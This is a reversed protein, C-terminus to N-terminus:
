KFLDVFDLIAAMEWMGRIEELEAAMEEESCPPLSHSGAPLAAASQTRPQSNSTAMGLLPPWCQLRVPPQRALLGSLWSLRLNPLRCVHRAAQSALQQLM